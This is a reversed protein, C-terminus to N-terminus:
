CLVNREPELDLAIRRVLDIGHERVDFRRQARVIREVRAAEALRHQLGVDDGDRM